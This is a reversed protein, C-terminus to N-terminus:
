FWWILGTKDLTKYMLRQTRALLSKRGRSDFLQRRMELWQPSGWRYARQVLFDTNRNLEAALEESEFLFGMENNYLRSRYDFNSTGIYGQNDAVIYKAHLKAYHRNGGFFTDDLKGMEYIRLQPHNIMRVWEPSSVLAPNLEGDKMNGIWQKRMAPSLLLRPALDMDIVSQTFPNDSTLVSNTVIEISSDPNADLWALMDRAEDLVTETDSDTYRASFLYPSVIRISKHKGYGIRNMLGTISNPSAALNELAEKVVNTNVLNGLEHVLLLKGQHSGLDRSAPLASYAAAFAPLAKLQRLSKRFVARRAAFDENTEISRHAKLERNHRYMFLISYYTEVLQGLSYRNQRNDVPESVVIDADRYSHPNHSGDAQIGYYDLSMNRGGTIASFREPFLGDVVLLKDHSRRNLKLNPRSLANFLVTQVRARYRTIQGERNQIYGANDACTELSKLDNRPFGFSGLSDVAVRVDVGRVVADCLAGLVAHGVLDDRFIYYVLDITHRANEIMRIRTALADLAEADTSGLWQVTAHLQEAKEDRGFLTLDVPVQDRYNFDRQEYLTEIFTDQVLGPMPQQVPTTTCGALAFVLLFLGLTTRGLCQYQEITGCFIASHLPTSM